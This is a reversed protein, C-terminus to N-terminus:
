ILVANKIDSFTAYGDVKHFSTWILETEIGCFVLTM